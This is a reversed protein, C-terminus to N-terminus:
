VGLNRGGCIYSTGVRRSWFAREFLLARATHALAVTQTLVIPVVAGNVLVLTSDGARAELKHIAQIRFYGYAADGKVLPIHVKLPAFTCGLALPLPVLNRKGSVFQAANRLAKPDLAFQRCAQRVLTSVATPLTATQEPYIVISVLGQATYDPYFALVSDWDITM